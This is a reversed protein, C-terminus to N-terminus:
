CHVEVLDSDETQDCHDCKERLLRRMWFANVRITCILLLLYEFAATGRHPCLACKFSGAVPVVVVCVLDKWHGTIQHDPMRDDSSVNQRQTLGMRFCSCKAQETAVLQCFYVPIHQINGYVDRTMLQM